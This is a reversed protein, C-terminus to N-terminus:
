IELILKGNLFLDVLFSFDCNGRSHERTRWEELAGVDTYM